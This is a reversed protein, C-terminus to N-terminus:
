CKSRFLPGLLAAIEDHDGVVASWLPTAGNNNPLDVTQSQGEDLLFPVVEIVLHGRENASNLPGLKWGEVANAIGKRETRSSYAPGYIRREEECMECLWRKFVCAKDPISLIVLPHFLARPHAGDVESTVGVLAAQFQDKSDFLESSVARAFSM